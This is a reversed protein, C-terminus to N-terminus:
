AFAKTVNFVVGLDTLCFEDKFVSIVDSGPKIVLFRNRHIWYELENYISLILLLRLFLLNRELARRL